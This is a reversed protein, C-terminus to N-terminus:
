AYPDSHLAIWLSGSGGRLPGFEFAFLPGEVYRRVRAAEQRENGAGKLQRRQFAAGTHWGACCAPYLVGAWGGAEDRLNTRAIRSAGM